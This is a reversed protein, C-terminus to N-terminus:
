FMRLELAKNLEEQDLKLKNGPRSNLWALIRNVIHGINIFQLIPPVVSNSIALFFIEEVLGSEDFLNQKIYINSITPVLISNM